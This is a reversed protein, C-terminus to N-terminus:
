TESNDSSREIPALSSNHQSDQQSSFWILFKELAADALPIPTGGAAQVMAVENSEFTRVLVQAPTTKLYELAALADRTRRM